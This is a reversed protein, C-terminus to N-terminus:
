WQIFEGENLGFRELLAHMSLWRGEKTPYNCDEQGWIWKYVKLITEVPIGVSDEVPIRQLVFDPEFGCCVRYLAEILMEANRRDLEYKREIDDSIEG